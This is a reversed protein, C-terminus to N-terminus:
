ARARPAASGCRAPSTSTSRRPSRRGPRARRRPPHRRRLNVSSTSSASRRRRARRGREGDRVDLRRVDIGPPAAGRGRSRRRDRRHGGACRAALAAFARAIGAGIGSTAGTLSCVVRITADPNSSLDLVSVCVDAPSRRCTPSCSPSTEEDGQPHAEARHAQQRRLDVEPHRPPQLRDQAAWLARYNNASLAATTRSSTSSCRPRPLTPSSGPIWRTRSRRPPRRTPACGSTPRRCPPSSNRSRRATRRSGRRAHAVNFGLYSIVDGGRIVEIAGPVDKQAVIPWPDWGSFADIGKALLAVTM